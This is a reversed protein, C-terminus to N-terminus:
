PIRFVSVRDGADGAAARAGRAALCYEIVQDAGGASSSLVRDVEGDGLVAFGEGPGSLRLTKRHFARGRDIIDTFSKQLNRCGRGRAADPQREIDVLEGDFVALADEGSRLATAVWSL